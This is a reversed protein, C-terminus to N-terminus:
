RYVQEYVEPNTEITYRDRLAVGLQEVLDQAMGTTVANALTQRFAEDAADGAPKVGTLRAIIINDGDAAYTAEGVSLAFLERALAQPLRNGGASLGDRALEEITAFEAGM